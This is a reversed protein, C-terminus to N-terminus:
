SYSSWGHSSGARCGSLSRGFGFGVGDGVGGIERSFTWGADSSASSVASFSFFRFSRAERHSQSM